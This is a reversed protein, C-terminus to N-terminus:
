GGSSTAGAEIDAVTEQEAAIELRWEADGDAGHQDGVGARREIDGDALIEVAVVLEVVTGRIGGAGAGVNQLGGVACEIEVRCPILGANGIVDAGARAM